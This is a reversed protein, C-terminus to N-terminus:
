ITLRRKFMLNHSHAKEFSHIFHSFIEFLDESSMVNPDEGFFAVTTSFEAMATEHLAEILKIEQTADSLFQNLVDKICDEPESIQQSISSLFTETEQLSNHLYQIDQVLADHSVKAAKQVSSLEEGLSLVEPFKNYVADALVHLFSSKNDSTKTTDMQRLFTIRFGAAEGIRNNGKNMYNGMALIIEFLRTLKESTRLQISANMINELNQKLESCHERFNAKFLLSKLREEYNGVLSMQYIFQDPKTLLSENGTYLKYKTIENQSPVFSLLQDLLGPSLIKEDASYLAKKIDTVPMKLHGLLITRLSPKTSFQTELELYNIVGALDQENLKEWITNHVSKNDLKEWNIRKVSMKNNSEELGKQKDPTVSPPPLPAPPPLSPETNSEIDLTQMATSLNTHQALNSEKVSSHVSDEPQSINIHQINRSEKNKWGQNGLRVSKLGFDLKKMPKTETHVSDVVNDLEVNLSLMPSKDKLSSSDEEDDSGSDSSYNIHSDALIGVTSGNNAVYTDTNKKTINLSKRSGSLPISNMKSFMELEQDTLGVPIITVYNKGNIEKHDDFKMLETNQSEINQKVLADRIEQVAKKTEGLEQMLKMDYQSGLDSRSTTYIKSNNTGWSSSSEMEEEEESSIEFDPSADMEAFNTQQGRIKTHVIDVHHKMLLPAVVHWLIKKSPSDLMSDLTELLPNIEKTTEYDRLCQRFQHRETFTLLFDIQQEASLPLSPMEFAPQTQEPVQDLSYSQLAEVRHLIFEQHLAPLDRLVFYWLLKKCPTELLISLSEYLQAINKTTRYNKLAKKMLYREQPTLLYNAKESFTQGETDTRTDDLILSEESDHSSSSLSPLSSASKISDDQQYDINRWIEITPASGSEQLLQILREHECKSVDINNLKIIFDGARLGVLEASGGKDVSEIYAPHSSKIVFGFSGQQKVLQVLWPVYKKEHLNKSISSHSSVSSTRNAVQLKEMGFSNTIKDFIARDTPPILLRITNIINRSETSKLVSNLAKGLITIDRDEAYQKLATVIAMKKKYDEGLEKELKQHIDKAKYLGSTSGTMDSLSKNVQVLNSTRSVPITLLTLSGSKLLLITTLNQTVAKANCNAELILDGSRLGSQYALGGFEVSKVSIPKENIVSFGYGLKTDPNIIVTQLSSVVELEPPQKSVSKALVKIEDASFTTVDQGGVELLQDGPMLGSKYALSGKEVSIVYCPGKGYIEFGFARPWKQLLRFPMKM